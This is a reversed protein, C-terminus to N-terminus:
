LKLNDLNNNLLKIMENTLEAKNDNRTPIRVLCNYVKFKKEQCKHMYESITKDAYKFNFFKVQNNDKNFHEFHDEIEQISALRDMNTIKISFPRGPRGFMRVDVDERGGCHINFDKDKLIVCDIKLEEKIIFLQELNPILMEHISTEAHKLSTGKNEEKKKNNRLFEANWPAQSM